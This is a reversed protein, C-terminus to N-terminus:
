RSLEEEAVDAVATAGAARHMMRRVDGVRALSRRAPRRLDLSM